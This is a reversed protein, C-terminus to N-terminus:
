ALIMTEKLKELDEPRNIGISDLDTIAVHVAIGNDVVRMQELDFAIENSTRDMNTFQLLFEKRFGYIGIHKACNDRDIELDSNRFFTIATGDERINVKVVDPNEFDESSLNTSAVTAINVKRETDFQKIVLNIIEPEIFPEDGQINLFIDGSVLGAVEAMRETGSNHNKDTMMVPIGLEKMARFVTHHDTAIIIRGLMSNSAREYVRAVMPIGDILELVKGPFRESHYRAPIVGVCDSVILSSMM